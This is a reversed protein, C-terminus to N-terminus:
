ILTDCLNIKIRKTIGEIENSLMGSNKNMKKYIVKVILNITLNIYLTPITQKSKFFASNKKKKYYTDQQKERVKKIYM